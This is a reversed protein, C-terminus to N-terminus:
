RLVLSTQQPEAQTAAPPVVRAAQAFSRRAEAPTTLGADLAGLVAKADIRRRFPVWSVFAPLSSPTAGHTVDAVLIVRHRTTAALDSMAALKRRVYDHTWFGMVEIVCCAGTDDHTALFDPFLWRDGRQMPAPERLLTWRSDLREFDRHLREELASDYQAPRDRESLVPDRHTSLVHRVTGGVLCRARLSWEDCWALARVFRALSRGYIVTHQHLALPGSLALRTCTDSETAEVILRGHRLASMVQRPQGRFAVDVSVSRTLLRCLWALNTQQLLEATPPLPTTMVILREAPLDALLRREIADTPLKLRAAALNVAAQRSTTATRAQFVALRLASPWPPSPPEVDFHRALVSHLAAVAGDDLGGLDLRTLRGDLLRRPAGVSALYALAIREVVPGASPTLFRPRLEPALAAAHTASYAVSM